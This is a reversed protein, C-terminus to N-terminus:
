TPCSIVRRLMFMWGVSVSRGPRGTRMMTLRSRTSRGYWGSNKLRPVIRHARGLLQPETRERLRFADLQGERARGAQLGVEIAVGRQVRLRIALGYVRRHQDRVHQLCEHSPIPSEFCGAPVARLPWDM